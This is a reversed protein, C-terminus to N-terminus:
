EKGDIKDALKMLEKKILPMLPILFDDIKNESQAAKGAAYDMVKEILLKIADEAIEIGDAKLAAVLKQELSPEM